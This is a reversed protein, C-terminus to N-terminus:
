GPSPPWPCRTWPCRVREARAARVGSKHQTMSARLLAGWAPRDRIIEVMEGSPKLDLMLALDGFQLDLDLLAVQKEPDASPAKSLALRPAGRAHLRGHRGQCPDRHHGPRVASRRPRQLKARATAIADQMDPLEFAAPHLRRRGAPHPQARGSGFIRGRPWSPPARADIIEVCIAFSGNTTPTSTSWCSTWASSRQSPEGNVSQLDGIRTEARVGDPAAAHTSIRDGLEASRTM